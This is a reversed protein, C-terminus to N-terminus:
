HHKESASTVLSGALLLRHYGPISASVKNRSALQHGFADAIAIRCTVWRSKCVIYPLSRVTINTVILPLPVDKRCHYRISIAIFIQCQPFVKLLQHRHQHCSPHWPFLCYEERSPALCCYLNLYHKHCTTRWNPVLQSNLTHWRLAVVTQIHPM